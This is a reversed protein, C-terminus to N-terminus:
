MRAPSTPPAQDLSTLLRSVLHEVQAGHGAALARAPSRPLDIDVSQVIHGPRPAFVLVRDALYVAEEVDHTVVLVTWAEDKWCAALRDRLRRRTLPDIAGFPEDLLLIERQMLLTRLLAARQRMGGSLAPPWAREFGELGFTSLLKRAQLRAEYRAMGSIEMGLILNDVLRRWPLLLDRQPMYATLGSRCDPLEGAVLIEGSDPQELGALLRLLTSKGSGSPGVIASISGAALSFSLDEIAQVWTGEHTYGKAVGRPYLAPEPRM